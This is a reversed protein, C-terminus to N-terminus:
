RRVINKTAESIATAGSVQRSAVVARAPNTGDQSANNLWLTGGSFIGIHINILIGNAM